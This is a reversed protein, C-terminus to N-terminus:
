RGPAASTSARNAVAYDAPRRRFYGVPRDPIPEPVVFETLQVLKGGKRILVAEGALARNILRGIKPKAEALTLIDM